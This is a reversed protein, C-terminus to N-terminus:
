TLLKHLRCPIVSAQLQQLSYPSERKEKFSFFMDGDELPKKFIGEIPKQRCNGGERREWGEKPPGGCSSSHSQFSGQSLVAMLKPHPWMFKPCLLTSSCSQRESPFFISHEDLNAIELSEGFKPTLLARTGKGMRLM